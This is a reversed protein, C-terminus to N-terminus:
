GPVNQRRQEAFINMLNAGFVIAAGLFVPWELPESYLFFAVVAILPLRLFEMPSVVSAPAVSLASTICWHGSLGACGVVALYPLSSATPLAIQGDMGATIVGFVVQIIVLWFLICTVSATRSLLKTTLIAGAFGFAALTATIVGPTIELAGPRAVILIGIFGLVAAVLRTSRWREGLVLPAALAVWIPSTFELAFVQAMPVTAVAFFWLNQGAFHFLNRLGHLGLRDINIQHLTGAMWGVGLVIGIGLLSRYMMIEFTDHQGALERGAVAMTMFSLM